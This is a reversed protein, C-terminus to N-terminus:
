PYRVEHFSYGAFIGYGNTINGPMPVPEGGIIEFSQNNLHDALRRQYEYYAKSVSLLVIRYAQRGAGEGGFPYFYALLAAPQGDFQRDTFFLQRDARLSSLSPESFLNQGAERWVTDARGTQQDNRLTYDLAKVQVAYYNEEGAPDDLEVRLTNYSGGDLDVGAAENVVVRRIPVPLPVSSEATVSEYRPASVVVAYHRGARVPRGESRYVVPLPSDPKLVAIPQGDEYLTVQANEVASLRPRELVSQSRSVQVRVLSDPTIFANVVLRAPERDLDLKVDRECGAALVLLALCLGKRMANDSSLM